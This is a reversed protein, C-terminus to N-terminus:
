RGKVLAPWNQILSATTTPAGIARRAILVRGHPAADFAFPAAEGSLLPKAIGLRVVPTTTLPISMLAPQLGGSATRSGSMFLLERGDRSFRPSTGTAAVQWRNAAAPFDIMQISSTGSPDRVSLALLKGDPSFDLARVDQKEFGAVRKPEGPNGAADVPAYHLRGPDRDGEIWALWHGDPTLRGSFGNRLKLAPAGSDARQSMLAMQDVPGVTYMVRNGRPHWVPNLMAQDVRLKQVITRTDTELRTDAGRALDRVFLNTQPRGGAVYVLRDGEPSVSFGAMDSIPAGPISTTTTNDGDRTFWFLSLMPAADSRVILTGEASVSYNTAGAQVLTARTLDPSSETFPTVWLGSNDGIRRFLLFGPEAYRVERATPETVLARREGKGVVETRFADPDRLHLEALLRGDPLASVEHFDIETEPNIKVIAEPTGGSAAVKYLNEHWTAFVITGDRLWTMGMVPGPGAPIRCVTFVPGGSAPLTRLTSEAVYALTRGDPSWRVNGATPSVVGLDTAATEKFDRVYLHGDHVYAARTGDPSISPVNREAMPAPLEFRRLPLESGPKLAWTLGAAVAIAVVALGAAALWSGRRSAPAGVVGKETPTEDIALLADGIDRLRQKPEKKLCRKLLDVIHSPVSAPLRAWDPDATVVRGLSEVATGSAFPSIGTLMEYLVCGFAWIDARKDVAKGKAQEPTMYAATGIIMGLQTPPSTYTPSLAPDQPVADPGSIAKALGFDLVKVTDDPTIRINAPKLDRHVIGREHAADLAEALQRALPQAQPWPLPGRAIRAALDEGEVLEMVIAITDGSEHVGYIQAIYPHNLAALARAEREFRARRERDAAVVAPLIKIAVHRDLKSDRARYVEGM